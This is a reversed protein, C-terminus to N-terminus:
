GIEVKRRKPELREEVALGHWLEAFQEHAAYIAAAISVGAGRGMQSVAISSRREKIPQHTPTPRARQELPFEHLSNSKSKQHGCKDARRAAGWRRREDETGFCFAYLDSLGIGSGPEMDNAPYVSNVAVAATGESSAAREVARKAPEAVLGTLQVRSVDLDNRRPLGVAVTVTKM